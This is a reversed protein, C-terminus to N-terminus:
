ITHHANISDDWITFGGPFPLEVCMFHQVLDASM